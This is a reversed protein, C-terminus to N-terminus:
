IDRVVIFEKLLQVFIDLNNNYFDNVVFGGYSNNNDKFQINSVKNNTRTVVLSHNKIDKLTVEDVQINNTELTKVM